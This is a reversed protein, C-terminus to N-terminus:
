FLVEAASLMTRVYIQRPTLTLPIRHAYVFLAWLELPMMDFIGRFFIENSHTHANVFGPLVLYDSADFVEDVPGSPREVIRSGEIYIDRKDFSFYPTAVLGQSLLKIKSM